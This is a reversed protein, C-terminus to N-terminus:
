LDYRFRFPFLCIITKGNTDPIRNCSDMPHLNLDLDLPFESINGLKLNIKDGHNQKLHKKLGSATV